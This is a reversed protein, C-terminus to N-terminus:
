PGDVFAGCNPDIGFGYRTIVASNTCVSSTPGEFTTAVAANFPVGTGATNGAVAADKAVFNYVTRAGAGFTTQLLVPATVNTTASGTTATWDISGLSANGRVDAAAIGGQQSIYQAVSFPVLSQPSTLVTGNHEEIINTSGIVGDTTDRVCTGWHGATGVTPDTLLTDTLGMVTAWFGRTGSGSQPILPRKNFCAATGPTGNAAYYKKVDAISLKSAVSSAQLHAYTVADTAFEYRRYAFSGAAGAPFGSSSSRAVDVCLTTGDRLATPYNAGVAQNGVASLLANKGDGSGNPRHFAACPAHAATRTTITGGGTAKYNFLTNGGDIAAALGDMVDQTTDSGVAVLATDSPTAPDAQASGAIGLAALGTVAVVGLTRKTFNM